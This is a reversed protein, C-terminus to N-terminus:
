DLPPLPDPTRPPPKLDEIMAAIGASVTDLVVAEDCDRMLWDRMPGFANAYIIFNAVVEPRKDDEAAGSEARLQAALSRILREERLRLTERDQADLHPVSRYALLTALRRKKWSHRLIRAVATRVSGRAPDGLVEPMGGNQGRFWLRNLVRRLIDHKNAVYDYLSAQNVGSRACIDRITTSAYGKEIFLELAADLLQDRRLEVRAPDRIANIEAEELVRHAGDRPRAEPRAEPGADPDPPTRKAADDM